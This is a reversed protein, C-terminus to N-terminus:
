RPGGELRQLARIAPYDEASAFDARYYESWYSAARDRTLAMFDPNAEAFHQLGQAANPHTSPSDTLFREIDLCIEVVYEGLLQVVFPACWGVDHSLALRLAEQRTHGDHHRTYICGAASRSAPALTTIADAPFDNYIRDPIELMEGNFTVAPWEANNSEHIRGVPSYDASPVLDVAPQADSRATSPFARLLQARM